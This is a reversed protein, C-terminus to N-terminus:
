WDNDEGLGDAITCEWDKMAEIQAEDENAEAYQKALKDGLTDLRMRVSESVFRSINRKGVLVHLDHDVDRAISYTRNVTRM